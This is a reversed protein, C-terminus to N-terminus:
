GVAAGGALGAFGEFAFYRDEHDSQLLLEMEFAMIDPLSQLARKLQEFQAFTYTM